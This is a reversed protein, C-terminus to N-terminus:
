RFYSNGDLYEDMDTLVWDISHSYTEFKWVHVELKNPNDSGYIVENDKDSIYLRRSTKFYVNIVLINNDILSRLNSFDIYYKKYGAILPLLKYKDRPKNLSRDIDLGIVGGAALFIRMDNEEFFKQSKTFLNNDM